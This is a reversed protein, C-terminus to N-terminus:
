SSVCAKAQLWLSAGSGEYEVVGPSARGATRAATNIELEPDPMAALCLRLSPARTTGFTENMTMDSTPRAKQESHTLERRQM